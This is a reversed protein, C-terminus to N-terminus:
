AACTSPAPCTSTSAHSRSPPVFPSRPPGRSGASTSGKLLHYQDRIAKPLYKEPTYSRDLDYHQADIGGNGAM